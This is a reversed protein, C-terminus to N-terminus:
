IRTFYIKFQDEAGTVEKSLLSKIFSFAISQRLKGNDNGLDDKIATKVDDYSIDKVQFFLLSEIKNKKTAQTPEEVKEQLACKHTMQLGLM